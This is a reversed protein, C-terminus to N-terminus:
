VKEKRKRPSILAKIDIERFALLGSPRKIMVVIVLTPIVIWKFLNLPRLVEMLLQVGVAGAISGVVSNLGGLYVMAIVELLKPIGFTAPNIYGMLHAFLGGAIGAWFAALMFSTVKTKRTNITMADAATENDRVANMTKGLISKTYNILVWLALCMWIFIFLLNSYKPQGMLGRAGGLVELNEGVSKVIFTFALSIIALYDGRTRFSPIAVILSALAAAFGGIVLIIPFIYPGLFEPLFANGYADSNTFLRVTLFSTVYAGVAMFGPHSCSFEGMYGNILNLSLTVIIAIFVFSLMLVRYANLQSWVYIVLFLLALHIIVSVTQPLKDILVASIKNMLTDTLRAVLLIPLVYVIGVFLLVSPILLPKTFILRLGLLTPIKGLGLVEALPASLQMEILVAALLGFLWGLTPVTEFKKRFKPLFKRQKGTAGPTVNKPSSM